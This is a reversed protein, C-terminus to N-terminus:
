ADQAGDAVQVTGTVFDVTVRYAHGRKNKLIVTGGSSGGDAFFVMMFLGSTAEEDEFIGKQIRVGEPLDYHKLEAQTEPTEADGENKDGEEEAEREDPGITVRGRDLDFLALYTITESAARSRAYRLSSAVRKAATKLDMNTLSGALKPGVFGSVVGIIVLVV